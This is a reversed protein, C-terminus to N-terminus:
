AETLNPQLARVDPHAAPEFPFLGDGKGPWFCQWVRFSDGSYFWRAYGLYEAYHSRDVPKLQCLAGELLGEIAEGIPTKVGERIRDGIDNIVHGMLESPLGFMIVEPTGLTMEMGVSYVFGPGEDDEAIMVLHWGHQEINDRILQESRDVISWKSKLDGRTASHNCGLKALKNLSPDEAVVQELCVIDADTSDSHKGGCLFQWDGDPEHVVRLVPHGERSVHHCVIVGLNRDQKFAFKSRKAM